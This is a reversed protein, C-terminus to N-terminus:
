FGLAPGRNASAILLIASAFLSMAVRFWSKGARHCFPANLFAIATRALSCTVLGVPHQMQTPVAGLRPALRQEIVVAFERKRLIM